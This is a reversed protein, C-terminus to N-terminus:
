QRSVSLVHNENLWQEYKGLILAIGTENLNVSVLAIFGSM